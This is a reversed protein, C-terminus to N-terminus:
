SQRRSFLMKMYHERKKEGPNGGGKAAGPRFQEGAELGHVKKIPLCSLLFFRGRRRDEKSFVCSFFNLM